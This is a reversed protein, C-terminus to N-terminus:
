WRMIMRPVGLRDLDDKIGLPGGVPVDDPEEEVDVPGVKAFPRNAEVVSGLDEARAVLLALDGQVRDSVDVGHADPGALGHGPDARGNREPLGGFVLVIEAVVRVPLVLEVRLSVHKSALRM